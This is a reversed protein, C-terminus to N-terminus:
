PEFIPQGYHLLGNAINAPTGTAAAGAIAFRECGMLPIWYFGDATITTNGGNRNLVPLKIQASGPYVNGYFEVLGGTMGAIEVVMYDASYTPLDGTSLGAFPIQWEMSCPAANLNRMGIISGFSRSRLVSSSSAEGPISHMNVEVPMDVDGGPFNHPDEYWGYGVMLEITDPNSSSTITLSHYPKLDGSTAGQKLTHEEGDSDIVTVTGTATLCYLFDGRITSNLPKGVYELRIKRM